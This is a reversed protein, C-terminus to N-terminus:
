TEETKRPVDHTTFVRSVDNTCLLLDFYSNVRKNVYCWLPLVQAQPLLKTCVKHLRFQKQYLLILQEALIFSEPISMLLMLYVYNFCDNKATM